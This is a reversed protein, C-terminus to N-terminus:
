ALPLHISSFCKILESANGGSILSLPWFDWFVSKASALSRCQSIEQILFFRPLSDLLPVHAHPDKPGKWEATSISPQPFSFSPCKLDTLPFVWLLLALVEKEPAQLFLSCGSNRTEKCFGISSGCHLLSQQGSIMGWGLIHLHQGRWSVPGLKSDLRFSYLTHPNSLWFSHYSVEFDSRLCVCRWPSPLPAGLGLQHFYSLLSGVFNLPSQAARLYVNRKSEATVWLSPFSTSLSFCQFASISNVKFHYLKIM